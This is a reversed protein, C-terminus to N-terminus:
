VVKFVKTATAKKIVKKGQRKLATITVSYTGKKTPNGSIVGTKKNISLGRPLGSASFTSAGFSTTVKYRIMSKRFSFIEEDLNSTIIIRTDIITNGTTAEGTTANLVCPYALTFLLIIPTLALKMYKFDIFYLDDL